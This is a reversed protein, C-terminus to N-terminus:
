DCNQKVCKARVEKTTNRVLKIERREQVAFKILAEKFQKASDVRMGLSFYVKEAKVQFVPHKSKKRLAHDDDSADTSVASYDNSSDWYDTGNGDDAEAVFPEQEEECNESRNVEDHNQPNYEDATGEVQVKRKRQNKRQTFSRVTNRAVQLEEDDNSM